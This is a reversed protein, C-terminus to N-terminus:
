AREQVVRIRDVTIVPSGTGGIHTSAVIACLTQGTRYASAMHYVLVDNIYFDVSLDENWIFSLKQYTSGVTLTTAVATDTTNNATGVWWLDGGNALEYIFGIFDSPVIVPTTVDTCLDGNSETKADTLGIVLNDIAAAGTTVKVRADFRGPTSTSFQLASALNGFDAAVAGLSIAVGGFAQEVIAITTPSTVDAEVTVTWDNTLLTDEAFDKDFTFQDFDDVLANNQMEQRVWLKRPDHNAGRTGHPLQRDVLNVM